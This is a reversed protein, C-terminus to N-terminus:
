PPTNGAAPAFLKEIEDMLPRTVGKDRSIKFSELVLTEWLKGAFSKEGRHALFLPRAEDPRDLLMLAEARILDFWNQEPALPKGEDLTSLAGQYDHQQLMANACYGIQDVAQKLSARALAAEADNGAPAAVLGAAAERERLFAALAGKPDGSKLRLNGFRDAAIFLFRLGRVYGPHLALMADASVISAAFAAAAGKEDGSAQLADGLARRSFAMDDQFVIDDPHLKLWAETVSASAAYSESAAKWDGRKGLAAGLANDILALERRAESPAEPTAAYPELASRADRLAALAGEADGAGAKLDAVGHLAVGMQFRSSTVFDKSTLSARIADAAAQYNQIAGASDKAAVQVVAWKMLTKALDLAARADGHEALARAIQANSAFLALAGGTDGLGALLDGVSNADVLSAVQADVDGPAERALAARIEAAARMAELSGALDGHATLIAAIAELTVADSMRASPDMDAEALRSKEFNLKLRYAELAARWDGKFNLAVGLSQLAMTRAVVWIPQAPEQDSIGRALEDAERLEVIARDVDGALLHIHAVSQLLISLDGRPKTLKPSNLIVARALKEAEAYDSLAEAPSHKLGHAHAMSTLSAFADLRLEVSAAPDRLPGELGSLGERFLALAGDFENRALLADGLKRTSRALHRRWIDSKANTKEEEDAKPKALDYSAQYNAFAAAGDQGGLTFADGLYILAGWYERRWFDNTPSKAILQKGIAVAQQLSDIAGGADGLALQTQGVERHGILIDFQWELNAPDHAAMAISTEEGAIYAALAGKLDRKATLAKGLREETLSHDRLFSTSNPHKKALPGSYLAATEYAAVAGDVDELDILADGVTRNAVALRSRLEDDKEGPEGLDRLLALGRRATPLAAAPKGARVTSSGIEVNLYARDRAIADSTVGLSIASEVADLAKGFEAIASTAEGQLEFAEAITEETAVLQHVFRPNKPESAALAAFADRATGAHRLAEPGDGLSLLTLAIAAEASAHSASLAPTSEGSKMLQEQLGLAQDLIEKVVSKPVGVLDRFRRALDVVLTDATKTAADLAREARASQTQAVLRQAEAVRRAESASWWQWGAAVALALAAVLGIGTRQAIRKNADAIAKADALRREQELRERERKEDAVAGAALVFARTSAPVEDGFREVYLRAGELLAPSIDLHRARDTENAESWERALPALAERTRILHAAEAVIAVAEPWIRLLSEHTPRVRQRAGDGESTLLRKAVFAEVLATREPRGSEFRARDLAGIMPTAEGTIPDAVIDRVLGTVLQPLQARSPADLAALAENATQSVAEALGHYDAYRLVGDGRAAEAASLRALTMQLLPLADGGRADQVLTTSLARGERTEFVLPPDCLAAPRTAMEELESPTAPLLDLTAGADRMRTFPELSQFRAYADSRIAIVVSALRARCLAELLAAFPLRSEPATEILLREAQDLALFLRAPRATEFNGQSRRTEAAAGLADRLPALAVDPDGMLQKTLMEKTRFAGRLLEAGLVDPALLSEALSLFPDVGPVIVARRWLDVEPLVGPLGVRPMLGARLLSSKGSGSAGILLLFPTRNAEAPAAEVDRLRQIAQDIVLDRGFFVSKRTEDFAVLGPYPSGLRVRDWMASRAPFGRRELWQRLCDEAKAAFEDTTAFEQFAALFQGGRNRFWTEFFGTLRRWQGEIDARDTADLAVMPAFPRRFVFIDPVGHGQRRAEMASLVEYATGSPYPEGSAMHPFTEPLPSGLRSGFIGLVLDCDRAEPIQAQFTDHSSYYRTEWRIAQIKVRGAYEANLREVIFDVREREKQVDGPSSVFLNLHTEGLM